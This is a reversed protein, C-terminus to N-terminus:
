RAPVAGGGFAQEDRDVVFQLLLTRQSDSFNNDSIVYLVTAGDDRVYGALGEMNDLRLPRGAVALETLQMINAASPTADNLRVIRMAPGQRGSYKRELVYIGDGEVFTADSPRFSGSRPYKFGKFNRDDDILWGRLFDPDDPWPREGLAFLQGPGYAALAEVGNNRPADSFEKPVPLASGVSTFMAPGAEFRLISNQGEFPVYIHDGFLALGEADGRGINSTKKGDPLLGTKVRGIGVLVGDDHVLEAVMWHGRDSISLIAKGNDILALGSYGGFDDDSSMLEIGGLFALKGIKINDSTTSILWPSSTVALSKGPGRPGFTFCSSLAMVIGLLVPMSRAWRRSLRSRPEPTYTKM